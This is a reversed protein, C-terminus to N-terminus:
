YFTVIEGFHEHWFSGVERLQEPQYWSSQFSSRVLFNDINKDRKFSILAPNHFSRVLREITKLHNLTKLFSIGTHNHPHLTLTLPIGDTNERQAMQLVPSDILKGPATTARKLRSLFM